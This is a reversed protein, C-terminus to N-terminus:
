QATCFVIGEDRWGAAVMAAIDALAPTFRHNSDWANKPGSLPFANNYARYLPQTGAPCSRAGNAAVSAPTTNYSIGEYNWQQVATPTPKAQAAKLANCEAVEVTFFHSNPGPTVSGYFRCVPSTGGILFQRGTRSFQGAAGGDVAAQEAPDSSYFFHGGPSTPFDATNLYEVVTGAEATGAKTVTVNATGDQAFSEVRISVNDAASVFTSGVPWIAAVGGLGTGNGGQAVIRAQRDKATDVIHIIVGQGPLQSDYGTKHRSEVTYFRTTTGAIAVRLLVTSTPTPPRSLREITYTQTGSSHTVQRNAPLFEMTVKAYANMSQGVCGYNIDVITCGAGPSSVVDWQSGYEDADPSESHPAGFAHAMEHALVAHRRWGFEDMEGLYPMWTAPWAKNLGALTHVSSGGWAADDLVDNFMLNVGYFKSFDVIPVAADTCDRFMETLFQESKKVGDLYFARPKPMIVWAPTVASGDLNLRGYSVERFYDNFGPFSTSLQALFYAPPRPEANNGGFRCLVSVFAQSGSIKLEATPLPRMERVQLRSPLDNAPASPLDSIVRVRKNLMSRLSDASLGAGAFDLEIRAGDDANLVYIRKSPGGIAPNPDGVLVTLIGEVVNVEAPAVQGGVTGSATLLFVFLWGWFGRLSNM